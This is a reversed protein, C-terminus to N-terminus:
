GKKLAVINGNIEHQISLGKIVSFYNRFEDPYIYRQFSHNGYLDFTNTWTTKFDPQLDYYLALGSRRFFWGLVPLYSLAALNGTVLLLKFREMRNLRSRFFGYFKSGIVRRIRQVWSSARNRIYHAAFISGGPRVVRALESVARVSDRTHQIVGECYVLDFQNDVLPLMTIDGQVGFWNSNMRLKKSVVDIASSLDISLVSAGHDLFYRSQDGAGAGMDAVAKGAFQAPDAGFKGAVRMKLDDETRMSSNWTWQWGFSDVTSEEQYASKDFIGPPELSLVHLWDVYKYALEPTVRAVCDVIPYGFNTGSIRLAGCIPVGAPTRALVISELAAGSLPDRWLIRDFLSKKEIMEIM